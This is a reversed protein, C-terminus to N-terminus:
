LEYEVRRHPIIKFFTWLRHRRKFQLGIRFCIFLKYSNSNHTRVCAKLAHVNKWKDKSGAIANNYERCEGFLRDIVRETWCNERKWEGVM